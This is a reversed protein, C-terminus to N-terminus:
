ANLRSPVGLRFYKSLVGPRKWKGDRKDTAATGKWGMEHCNSKTALCLSTLIEMMYALRRDQDSTLVRAQESLTVTSPINSLFYRSRLGNSEFVFQM